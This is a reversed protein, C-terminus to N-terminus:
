QVNLAPVAQPRTLAHQSSHSTLLSQGQVDHTLLHWCSPDPRGLHVGHHVGHHCSWPNVTNQLFKCKKCYDNCPHYEIIVLNVAGGKCCTRLSHECNPNCIKCLNANRAAFTAHVGNLLWRILPRKGKCMGADLPEGAHQLRQLSNCEHCCRNCPYWEIVVQDVAGGALAGEDM